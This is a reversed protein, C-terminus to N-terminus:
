YVAADEANVKSGLSLLLTVAKTDGYQVAYHLPTRKM